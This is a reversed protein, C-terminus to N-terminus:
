MDHQLRQRHMVVLGSHWSQAPVFKRRGILKPNQAPRGASVVQSSPIVAIAFTM